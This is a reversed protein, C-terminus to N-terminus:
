MLATTIISGWKVSNIQKKHMPLSCKLLPSTGERLLPLWATPIFSTKFCPKKLNAQNIKLITVSNFNSDTHRERGTKDLIEPIPVYPRSPGQTKLNGILPYLIYGLFGPKLRLYGKRSQQAKSISYAYATESSHM